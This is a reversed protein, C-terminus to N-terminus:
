PEHTAGEKPLEPLPQWHTVDYHYGIDDVWTNNGQYELTTAVGGGRIAVLYEPFEEHLRYYRKVEEPDPLFLGAPIWGGNEPLERIVKQCDEITAAVIGISDGKLEDLAGLIIEKNM